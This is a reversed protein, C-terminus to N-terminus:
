EHNLLLQVIETHCKEFAVILPLKNERNRINIDCNNDLLLKVIISHGREAAASLPSEKNKNCINPDSKYELLLKVLDSNGKMTAMLLPSTSSDDCINPDSRYELLLKVLESNGKMTAMLLPSASSDDCINPDSKYELLLKVLESNGKTTAILLPSISRDDCINPNCKNMLLLAVTENQGYETAIFLPSKHDVNCLNIDIKHQLLLKVIEIQGKYAAVHLISTRHRDTFHLDSNHELLLKVIETHGGWSAKYLPSQGMDDCKNPNSKHDLLLKVIKVKGLSAARCLPSELHYRINPYYNHELLLKVIKTKGDFIAMNVLHKEFKSYPMQKLSLDHCKFFDTKYKLLLKVVTHYGKEVAVFLCSGLNFRSIEILYPKTKRLETVDSHFSKKLLLHVIDTYGKSSATLLPSAIKPCDNDYDPLANHILLLNVIDTNGRQAAIHLPSIRYPEIRNIQSQTNCYMDDLFSQVIDFSSKIKNYPESRFEFLDKNPFFMLDVDPLYNERSTDINRFISNVTLNPYAKEFSNLSNLCAHYNPDTNQKLLAQVVESCGAKAAKFLPTEGDWYLQDFQIEKTLIVAVIDYFHQDMMTMMLSFLMKGSLSDININGIIQTIFESRFSSDKLNRNSFVHKIFGEDIDKKLRDFYKTEKELPLEVVIENKLFDGSLGKIVFRDRIIDRHAFDITLDIMQRGFFYVYIEFIKEHISYQTNLKRIYSNNLKEMENKVVQISFNSKLDFHDAINELIPKIKIKMTFLSEAINNNCVIFLFLTALATQDFRELRSLDECVAKTPDTFFEVVRGSELRSYHQCLLPFFNFELFTNSSYLLRIEDKTLFLKAINLREKNTLCYHSALFDCSAESLFEITKVIRHQFIHTKCSALLIVRKSDLMAKIDNWMDLWKIAKNEDFTADGFVNEMVFINKRDPDYFYKIEELNDVIVINYEKTQALLLAISHIATSKGCGSPGVALAFNHLKVLKTLRTIARTQAVNEKKWELIRRDCIDRVGKPVPDFTGIMNKIENLIERDNRDLRRVKALSCTEIFSIGGLQIIAKSTEDWWKNFMVDKLIGDSSHMIKNRYYKITTLDAGVVDNGTFPLADEIQINTLNRILCIMLTLDFTESSPTGSTPFLLDWQDKNIVRRKNLTELTSYRAQNLVIKLGGPHFEQDFRVRVASPAVRILLHAIRLYNEEESSIDLAQEGSKSSVGAM